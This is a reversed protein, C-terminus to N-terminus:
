GQQRQHHSTTNPGSTLQVHPHSLRAPPTQAERQTDLTHTEAHWLTACCSRQMHAPCPFTPVTQSDATALCMYLRHDGVNKGRFRQDVKSTRGQQGTTPKSQVTLALSVTPASSSLWPTKHDTCPHRAVYGTTLCHEQGAIELQHGQGTHLVNWVEQNRSNGSLFMHCVVGNQASTVHKPHKGAAIPVQSSKRAHELTQFSSDVM